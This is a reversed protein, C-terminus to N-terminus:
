GKIIVLLMPIQSSERSTIIVWNQSPHVSSFLILTFTDNDPLSIPIVLKLDRDPSICEKVITLGGSPPTNWTIRDERWTSNDIVGLTLNVKYSANIGSLILRPEAISGPLAGKNFMFYARSDSSMNSGTMLLTSNGYNESPYLSSTYADRSAPIMSEVPDFFWIELGPPSFGERSSITAMCRQNRPILMLSTDPDLHRLPITHRGTHNFWFLTYPHQAPSSANLGTISSENWYPNVTHLGILCPREFYLIELTLVASYIYAHREVGPFRIYIRTRADNDSRLLLEEAHGTNKQWLTVPHEFIYADAAPRATKSRNLHLFQYQRDYIPRDSPSVNLGGRAYENLYGPAEYFMNIPNKWWHFRFGYDLHINANKEISLNNNRTASIEFNVGHIEGSRLLSEIMEFRWPDYPNYAFNPQMVVYDIGFDRWYFWMPALFFPCWVLKLSINHLYEATGRVGEYTADIEGESYIWYFGTLTLNHYNKNRWRELLQSISWSANRDYKFYVASLIVKFLTDDGLTKRVRGSVNELIDLLQFSSNAYWYFDAPTPGRYSNSNYSLRKSSVLVIGDYMRGSIEGNWSLHAVLPLLTDESWIGQDLYYIAISGLADLTKGSYNQSDSGKRMPPQGNEQSFNLWIYRESNVDLTKEMKFASSDVQIKVRGEPLSHLAYFGTARHDARMGTRCEGLLEGENSFAKVVADSVPRMESDWIYGIVSHGGPNDGRADPDHRETIRHTQLPNSVPHHNGQTENDAHELSTDEPPILDGGYDVFHTEEMGALLFIPILFAIVFVRWEPM